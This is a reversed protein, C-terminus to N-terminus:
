LVSIPFRILAISHGHGHEIVM